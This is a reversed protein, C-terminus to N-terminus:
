RLLEKIQKHEGLLILLIGYFIIGFLGLFCFVLIKYVFIDKFDFIQHTIFDILFYSIISAFFIKGIRLNFFFGYSIELDKKLLIGLLASNLLMSLSTGLALIKFGFYPVLILCFIINAVISIISIIVPIKPKDLTYFIPSFVKYLGYFPLGVMYYDLALTTM